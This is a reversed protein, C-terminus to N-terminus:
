HSLGVADRHRPLPYPKCLDNPSLDAILKRVRAEVGPKLGKIDYQLVDGLANLAEPWYPHAERVKAVWIEIRDIQQSAVLSRLEGAMGARAQLGIADSRLAIEALRDLVCAGVYAWAEGWFKPQWPTLAPRSGHTESGVVRFGTNLDAGSILADVVIPM